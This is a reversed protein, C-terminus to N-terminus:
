KNVWYILLFLCCASIVSGLVISDRNKKRRIANLLGNVVPFKSGLNYLKDGIGDVVRRQDLLNSRVADAQGIVDDLAAHSSAIGTRERLLLASQGQAHGGPFGADAGGRAPAGNLLQQRDRAAGLASGLRRFEQTFDHLIDRHRALTHSRADAAGSLAGSMADNVDSLRGLLSEIEAAKTAILQDNALGAEGPRNSAYTSDYGTCLKGYAALKADLESELKRAEKRLDEWVRGSTESPAAGKPM